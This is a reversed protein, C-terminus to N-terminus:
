PEEEYTDDEYGVEDYPEVKIAELAYGAAALESEVREVRLTGTVWVVDFLKPRTGRGPEANVYVTQNAPPPPVHICAGYYPVL